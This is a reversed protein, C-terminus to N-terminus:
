FRKLIEKAWPDMIDAENTIDNPLVCQKCIPHQFRKGELQMRLFVKRKEGNWIDVLHQEMINGYVIDHISDCCAATVDGNARIMMRYFPRHCVKHIEKQKVNERGHLANKEIDDDIKHYDVSAFMPIISEIFLSDSIGGFIKELAKEKNVLDKIAMDAIKMRIKCNGKHEYLYHLNEVFQDFDMKVGCIRQYTEADLGQLSIRITDVGAAIIKDTRSPTFLLGNTTFDITEFMRTKRVKRIMEAFYPNCLSEGFGFMECKKIQHPFGQLEELIKQFVVPQMNGYFYNQQQSHACYKCRANCLSSVEVMINYPADLPVVDKLFTRNENRWQRFEVM